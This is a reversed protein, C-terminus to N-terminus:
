LGGFSVTTSLLKSLVMSLDNNENIGFFFQPADFTRKIEKPKERRVEIVQPPTKCDYRTISNVVTGDKYASKQEYFCDQAHVSTGITILVLPIAIHKVM